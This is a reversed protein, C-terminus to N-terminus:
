RDEKPKPEWNSVPNFFFDYRMSRFIKIQKAIEDRAKQRCEISSCQFSHSITYIIDNIDEIKGDSDHFHTMVAIVWLAIDRYDKEASGSTNAKTSYPKEEPTEKSDEMACFVAFYVGMCACLFLATQLPYSFGVVIFMYLAFVCVMTAATGMFANTLFELANKM